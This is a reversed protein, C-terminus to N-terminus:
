RPRSRFATRTPRLTTRVGKGGVIGTGVIVGNEIKWAAPIERPMAAQDGFRWGTFDTGTFLPVFAAEDARVHHPLSSGMWAFIAAIIAVRVYRRRHLRRARSVECDSLGATVLECSNDPRPIGRALCKRVFAVLHDPAAAM